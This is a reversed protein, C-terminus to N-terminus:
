ERNKIYYYAPVGIMIVFVALRWWGKLDIGFGFYLIASAVALSLFTMIFVRLVNPLKKM